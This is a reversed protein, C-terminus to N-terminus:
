LRYKKVHLKWLWWNSKCFYQAGRFWWLVPKASPIGVVSAIQATWWITCASVKLCGQVTFLGVARAEMYMTEDGSLMQHWLITATWSQHGLIDRARAFQWCLCLRALLVELCDNRRLHEVGVRQEVHNKSKHYSQNCLLWWSELYESRDGTKQDQHHRSGLEARRCRLYFSWTFHKSVARKKLCIVLSQFSKTHWITMITRIQQEM